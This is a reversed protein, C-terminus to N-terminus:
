DFQKTQNILSGILLSQRTFHSQYILGRNKELVSKLNQLIDESFPNKLEGDEMWEFYEM